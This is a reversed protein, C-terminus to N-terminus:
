LGAMWKGSQEAWTEGEGTGLALTLSIHNHGEAQILPVDGLGLEKLVEQAKKGSAKMGEPDRECTVLALPPLFRKGEAFCRQVIALPGVEQERGVFYSAAGGPPFSWPASVIVTGKIREMVGAPVGELVTDEMLTTVVHVGGASHGMMFVRDLDAGSGLASPNSLAWVLADRLDCAPGPYTTEPALRYDPIITIFNCPLAPSSAFYYGLNGYVLDAPAPRTRSGTVFGGGYVFILIPHKTGPPPPNPPYYIDLQHRDTAGYKFTKRSSLIESRKHELLPVFADYTPELVKGIDTDQLKAIIDMAFSATQIRLDEQLRPGPLFAISTPHSLSSSTALIPHHRTTPHSVVALCLLLGEFNLFPAWSRAFESRILHHEAM